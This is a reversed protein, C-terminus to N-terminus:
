RAAARKLELRLLRDPQEGASRWAIRGDPAIVYFTPFERVGYRSSVPGIPGHDPWTVARSGHDVLAPFPLGFYVHYAFVSPADESDANVSLFATDKKPLAAALRRLHPAEAACHPCWTAFFELLVAKGRLSRLSVPTGSPARLTFDPARSSIPLLGSPPDPAAAIPANEITDDKTAPRYHLEAAARLLAPPANRDALPITVQRLPTTPALVIALVAVLVAAVISAALGAVFLSRHRRVLPTRPSRAAGTEAM